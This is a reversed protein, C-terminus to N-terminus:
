KAKRTADPGVISGLTGVRGLPAWRRVAGLARACAPRCAGGRHTTPTPTSTPTPTIPAVPVNTSSRCPASGPIAATRAVTGDAPQTGAWVAGVPHFTTVGV